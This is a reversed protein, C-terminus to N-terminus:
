VWILANCYFRSHEGATSVHPEHEQEQAGFTETLFAHRKQIERHLKTAFLWSNAWM